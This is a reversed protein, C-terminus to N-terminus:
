AARGLTDALIANDLDGVTGKGVVTALREYQEAVSVNENAIRRRDNALFLLDKKTCDRLLKWGAGTFVRQQLQAQFQARIRAVKKSSAGPPVTPKDPVTRGSGMEVRVFTRLAEGLARGHAGDPIRRYVEDAVETPDALETSDLVERILGRLTFDNM